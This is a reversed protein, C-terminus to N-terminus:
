DKGEFQEIVKLAEDHWKKCVRYFNIYNAKIDQLDEENINSDNLSEEYFKKIGEITEFFFISNNRFGEFKYSGALQIPGPNESLLDLKQYHIWSEYNRYLSDNTYEEFEIRSLSSILLLYIDKAYKTEKINWSKGNLEIYSEYNGATAISGIAVNDAQKLCWNIEDSSAMTPDESTELNGGCFSILILFIVFKKM